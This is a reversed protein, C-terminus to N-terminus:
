ALVSVKEPRQSADLPQLVWALQTSPHQLKSSIPLRSTLINSLSCNLWAAKILSTTPKGGQAAKQFELYKVAKIITSLGYEKCNNIVKTKHDAAVQKLLEAQHAGQERSRQQYAQPPAVVLNM